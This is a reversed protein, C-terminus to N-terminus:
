AGLASTGVITARNKYVNDVNGTSTTYQSISVATSLIEELGLNCALVFNEAAPKWGEHVYLADDTDKGKPLTFGRFRNILQRILDYCEAVTPTDTITLHITDWWFGYALGFRCDAWYEFERLKAAAPTDADTMLESLSERDQFIVPKITPNDTIMAIIKHTVGDNSAMNATDLNDGTGFTHSNAFMATGDFCLNTTGAALHDLVEHGIDKKGRATLGQIQRLYGGTQNDDLDTKRVSIPGIRYEYNPVTYQKDMLRVAPSYGKFRALRPLNTMYTHAEVKATSPTATVFADYGAPYPKEDAALKGAAFEARALASFDSVTVPM